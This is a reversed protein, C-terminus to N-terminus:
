YPDIRKSIPSNCHVAIFFWRFRGANSCKPDPLIDSATGVGQPEIEPAFGAGMQLAEQDIELDGSFRCLRDKPDVEAGHEPM